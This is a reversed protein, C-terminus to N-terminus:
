ITEPPPPEHTEGTKMMLIDAKPSPRSETDGTPKGESAQRMNQRMEDLKMERLMYVRLSWNAITVSFVILNAHTSVAGPLYQHVCAAATDVLTQMEELSFAAEPCGSMRVGGASIMEFCPKLAPKLAELQEQASPEPAPEREPADKTQTKSGKPRGRKKKPNMFSSSSDEGAADAALQDLKGPETESM